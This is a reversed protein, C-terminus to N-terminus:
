QRYDPQYSELMKIYNAREFAKPNAVRGHSMVGRLRAVSEFQRSEMWRTLGALLEGLYAPGNRLLASATMVTDAGALLYKVIEDATQVGRTAGISAKIQGHLLAIWLLPLRIEDANSLHLTSNVELHEIDIDPQYFRNFLVLADAGAEDLQKAMHGFASFFPSLKLAVPIDVVSKVTKLIDLYRQEVELSSIDLNPEVAYINLELGKAGAQEIQKAYEVWGHATACNLSAILPIEITESATRILELYNDPGAPFADVAPFYSLSEAFSQTGAELFHSFAENEHHIQEEFLSFMVIAAAGSDELRRIGDVSESLPSASAIIPHKLELGMYTTTLDM